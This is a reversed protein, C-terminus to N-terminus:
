ASEIRLVFVVQDSKDLRALVSDAPGAELLVSVDKAANDAWGESVQDMAAEPLAM